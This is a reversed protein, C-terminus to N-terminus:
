RLYFNVVILGYLGLILPMFWMLLDTKVRISSNEMSKQLIELRSNINDFQGDTKHQFALMEHRMEKRDVEREFRMEQRFSQLELKIDRADSKTSINSLDIEQVAELLGEAQKQTFGKERLKSVVRQTDVSIIQM